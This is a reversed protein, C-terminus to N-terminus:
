MFRYVCIVWSGSPAVSDFLLMFFSKHIMRRRLVDQLEGEPIDSLQSTWMGPDRLYTCTISRCELPQSVILLLPDFTGRKERQSLKAM